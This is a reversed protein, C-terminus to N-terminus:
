RLRMAAIRVPQLEEQRNLRGNEEHDLQSNVIYYFNDKYITGTTPSDLNSSAFELLKGASIARGDPTLRLEVIRNAGFGQIGVLRDERRYLGDIAATSIGRPAPLDAMSQGNLDMVAIGFAHAVYVSKDDAALAIGNPYFRQQIDIRVLKNAAQPLKYISNDESDTVLVEGKATVVLDNFLHRGKEQPAYKALTRGARDFHFLAAQGDRESAAWVSRDRPDVKIGLVGLLGDQAETVFDSIKGDAAIRVIKRHYISSLYFTGDVPDSALGEPILDRQPVTKVTLSAAVPSYKSQVRAILRQFAECGRIPKFAEEPSPDIWPTDALAEELTSLAKETSGAQAYDVALNYRVAAKDSAFALLGEFQKQKDVSLNNGAKLNCGPQQASASIALFLGFFFIKM